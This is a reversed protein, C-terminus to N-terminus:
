TTEQQLEANTMRRPVYIISRVLMNAIKNGDFTNIELTTLGSPLAASTDESSLTGNRSGIMSNLAWALGMRQEVNAASGSIEEVMGDTSYVRYVIGANTTHLYIFFANSNNLRMNAVISNGVQIAFPVAKIIITGVTTSFPLTSLAKNLNDTARTVAAAATPIPSTAVTGAEAQAQWLHLTTGSGAYTVDGDANFTNSDANQAMGYHVTGNADSVKGVLSCRYWGNGADIISTSAITGSSTGVDTDTAEGDGVGASLDFVATIHEETTGGEYQIVVFNHTGAKAFVSFAADTNTALTIADSVVHQANTSDDTLTDATTAGDPAIAAQDDVSVNTATWAGDDFEQSQVQLNTAAPEVLLGWGHTPHNHLAPVGAAIEVYTGAANRVWKSSASSQTLWDAVSGSFGNAEDTQDKVVVQGDPFTADIALGEAENFLLLEAGTLSAPGRKSLIVSSLATSALM